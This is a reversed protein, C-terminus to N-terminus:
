RLPIEVQFVSGETNRRSVLSGAVFFGAGFHSARSLPFMSWFRRSAGGPENQAVGVQSGAMPFFFFADVDPQATQPAPAVRSKLCAM